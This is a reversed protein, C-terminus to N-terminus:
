FFRTTQITTQFKSNHVHEDTEEVNELKKLTVFGHISKLKTKEPIKNNM